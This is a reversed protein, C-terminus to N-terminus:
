IFSARYLNWWFGIVDNAPDTSLPTYVTLRNFRLFVLFTTTRPDLWNEALFVKKHLFSKKRGFITKKHLFSKKPWFYNKQAFIIKNPWFYNKKTCFHNKRGFFVKKQWFIIPSGSKAHPTRSSRHNTIIAKPYKQWFIQHSHIRLGSPGIKFRM